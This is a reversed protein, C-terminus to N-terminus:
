MWGRSSSVGYGQSSPGKNAFYHRQKEIHERSRDYSKKLEDKRKNLFYNKISM